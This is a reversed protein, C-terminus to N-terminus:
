QFPARPKARKRCSTSVISVTCQGFSNIIDSTMNSAYRKVQGSKKIHNLCVQLVTRFELPDCPLSAKITLGSLRIDGPDGM